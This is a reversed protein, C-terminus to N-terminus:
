LPLASQVSAKTLIHDEDVDQLEPVHGVFWATERQGCDHPQGGPDRVRVWGRSVNRSAGQLGRPVGRQRSKRPDPGPQHLSAVTLGCQLNGQPELGQSCGHPSVSRNAAEGSCGEALGRIRTIRAAWGGPAGLRVGVVWGGM